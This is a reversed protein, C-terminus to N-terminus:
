KLLNQWQSSNMTNLALPNGLSLQEAENGAGSINAELRALNTRSGDGTFEPLEETSRHARLQQRQQQTITGPFSLLPKYRGSANSKDDEEQNDGHATMATHEYKQTQALSAQKEPSSSFVTGALKSASDQKSTTLDDTGESGDEGDGDDHLDWNIEKRPM